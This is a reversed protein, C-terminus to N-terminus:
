VKIRKEIFGNNIPLEQSLDNSLHYVDLKNNFTADEFRELLRFTILSGNLIPMKHVRFHYEKAFIKTTFSFNHIDSTVQAIGLYNLLEDKYLIFKDSDYDPQKRNIDRVYSVIYIKDTEQLQIDSIEKNQSLLIYFVYDLKWPFNKWNNLINCHIHEQNVDM